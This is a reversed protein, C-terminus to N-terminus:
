CVCGSQSLCRGAEGSLYVVQFRLGQASLAQTRPLDPTDPSRLGASLVLYGIEEAAGLVSTLLSKVVGLLCLSYCALLQLRPFAGLLCVWGGSGGQRGQTERRLQAETDPKGNSFGTKM